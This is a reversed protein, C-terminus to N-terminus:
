QFDSGNKGWRSANHRALEACAHGKGLDKTLEEVFRGSYGKAGQRDRSREM